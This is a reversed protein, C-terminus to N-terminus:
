LGMCIDFIENEFPTKLFSGQFFRTKNHFGLQKAKEQCSLVQHGVPTIGTVNVNQEKVLWFATGGVGCGADLVNMGSQIDVAKSMYRNTNLVATAHANANEDYFGFHISLNKNTYWAANYDFRTEDYYKIVKELHSSM